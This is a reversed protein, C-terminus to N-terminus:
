RYQCCSERGCYRLELGRCCRAGWDGFRGLPLLQRRWVSLQEPNEKYDQAMEWRHHRQMEPPSMLQKNARLAEIDIGKSKLVAVVQQDSAGTDRLKSYINLIQRDTM